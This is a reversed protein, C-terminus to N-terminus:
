YFKNLAITIQIFSDMKTKFKHKKLIIKMFIFKLILLILYFFDIFQLSLYLCSNIFLCFFKFNDFYEKILGFLIMLNIFTQIKFSFKRRMNLLKRDLNVANHWNYSTFIIKFCLMIFKALFFKLTQSDKFIKPSTFHFIKEFSYFNENQYQNPM